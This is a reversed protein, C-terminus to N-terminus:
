LICASARRAPSWRRASGSPSTTALRPRQLAEDSKEAGWVSYQRLAGLEGARGSEPSLALEPSSRESLVEKQLREITGRLWKSFAEELEQQTGCKYLDDLTEGNKTLPIRRCPVQESRSESPLLRMLLCDSCPHSQRRLGYNLCIPSDEFIFSPRWSNRDRKRYGGAELFKLERILLALLASADTNMIVDGIKIQAHAPTSTVAPYNHIAAHPRKVLFVAGDKDFTVALEKSCERCIWFYETSGQHPLVVIRGDRLYRLRRRCEPNVCKSVM